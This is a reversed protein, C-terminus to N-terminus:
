NILIPTSFYYLEIEMVMILSINLNEMHSLCDSHAIKVNRFTGINGQLNASITGASSM